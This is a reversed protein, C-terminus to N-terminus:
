LRRDLPIDAHTVLGLATVEALASVKTHEGTAVLEFLRGILAGRKPDPRLSPGNRDGTLYGVPARWQWRGTGLRSKMGCLARAKRTEKDFEAFANLLTMMMRGAPTDDTAETASRLAVGFKRLRVRYETGDDVSRSFRSSSYIVCHSIAGKSTFALYRFM